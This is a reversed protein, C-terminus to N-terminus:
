ENDEYSDVYGLAYYKLKVQDEISLNNFASEKVCIRSTYSDHVSINEYSRLIQDTSSLESWLLSALRVSLKRLCDANSANTILVWKDDEILESM